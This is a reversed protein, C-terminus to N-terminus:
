RQPKSEYSVLVQNELKQNVKISNKGVIEPVPCHGSKHGCITSDCSDVWSPVSGEAKETGVKTKSDDPLTFTLHICATISKAQNSRAAGRVQEM